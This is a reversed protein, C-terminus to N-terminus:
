FMVSGLGELKLSIFTVNIQEVVESLSAKNSPEWADSM